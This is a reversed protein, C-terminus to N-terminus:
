FSPLGFVEISKFCKMLSTFFSVKRLLEFFELINWFHDLFLLIAISLIAFIVLNSLINYFDGLFAELAKSINFFDILDVKLFKWFITMKKYKSM